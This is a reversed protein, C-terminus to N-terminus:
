PAILQRTGPKFYPAAGTYKVPSHRRQVEALKALLEGALAEDVEKRVDALRKSGPEIADVRVLHVGFPTAVPQSIQGVELDFAARAFSEAMAGHRAIFGLKGRNKASPGASYKEAAEAFSLEGSAIEARIARARRMLTEVAGRGADAPWRLLIHSVSVRAGDFHRRRKDFYAAARQDTCYRALYKPWIGNWIIRRRLDAQTFGQKQLYADLSRHELELRTKLEVLAAEVQGSDPGEGMRRAYALVLRRNVIERLVQAQLVPLAAPNIRKQGAAKRLLREVDRQRIPEDGVTAVVAAGAARDDAAGAAPGQGPGTGACLAMACVCGWPALRAWPMWKM